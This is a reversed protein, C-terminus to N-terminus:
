DVKLELSNTDADLFDAKKLHQYLDADSLYNNLFGATENALLM